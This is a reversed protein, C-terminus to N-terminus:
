FTVLLSSKFAREGVKQLMGLIHAVLGSRLKTDARHLETLDPMPYRPEYWQRALAGERYVQYRLCLVDSITTHKLIAEPKTWFPGSQQQQSFLQAVAVVQQLSSYLM